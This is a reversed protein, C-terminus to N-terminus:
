LFDAMDGSWRRLATTGIYLAAVSALAPVACHLWSPWAGAVLIQQYGTVLGTLPNLALLGRLPEGLVEAPYVIPTLWFWFQLALGVAHAVDRMFVNLVGVTIGIGVALTHQVALLPLVGVVPWGPFRGAAALVVLLTAFVVAFHLLASLAVIAPLAARPFAAKKILNGHEIFMSLCRQVVETFGNWALVGACLFLGYGAADDIGAVRGRMLRGFVLLYIAIMGLPAAFVWLVGLMSHRYRARFERGVMGLIFRRYRWLDGAM